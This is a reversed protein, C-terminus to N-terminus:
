RGGTLYAALMEVLEARFAPRELREPGEDVALRVIASIGRGVLFIAEHFDGVAVEDAAARQKRPARVQEVDVERHGVRVPRAHCHGPEAILRIEGQGEEVHGQPKGGKKGARGTASLQASAGTPPKQRVLMPTSNLVSGSVSRCASVSAWRAFSIEIVGISPSMVDLALTPQLSFRIRPHGGADAGSSHATAALGTAPTGIAAFFFLLVLLFFVVLLFGLLLLALFFVVARLFDAGFFALLFAAEFFGAELAL